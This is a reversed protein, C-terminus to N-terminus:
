KEDPETGIQGAGNKNFNISPSGTVVGIGLALTCNIMVGFVLSLSRRSSLRWYEVPENNYGPIEIENGLNGEVVFVIPENVSTILPNNAHLRRENLGLRYTEVNELAADKDLSSWITATNSTVPILYDLKSSIPEVIVVVGQRTSATGGSGSIETKLESIAVGREYGITIWGGSVATTALILAPVLIHSLIKAKQTPSLQQAWDVFKPAIKKLIALILGLPLFM